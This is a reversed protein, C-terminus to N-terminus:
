LQFPCLYWSALNLSGCAQHGYLMNTQKNNNNNNQKTKNKSMWILLVPLILLFLEKKEM